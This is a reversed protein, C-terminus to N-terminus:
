WPLKKGLEELTTHYGVWIRWLHYLGDKQPRQLYGLELSCAAQYGAERVWSIVEANYGGLPYCFAIVPQGLKEELVAKSQSLQRMAEVRGVKLLNAHNLTHSGFHHGEQRLQIMQEWTLYAPYGVNGPLAFINAIMGYAKLLPAAVDFASVYGDDLSIILPRPPLPERQKFYAMLQAFDISHYGKQKLYALQRAFEAPSVAWEQEAKSAEPGLERIHHYMLIPIPAGGGASAFTATLAEGAELGGRHRLSFHLTYPTDPAL